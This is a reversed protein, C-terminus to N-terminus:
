EPLKSLPKLSLLLHPDESSATLKKLFEFGKKEQYLEEKSMKLESFPSGGKLTIKHKAVKDM